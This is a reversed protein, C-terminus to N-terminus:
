VPLKDKFKHVEEGKILSAAYEITAIIDEKIVGYEREIEEYSMGGILAGLIEDVTVRTGKIVPKGHRIKENVIINGM